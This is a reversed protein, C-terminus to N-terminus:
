ATPAIRRFAARIAVSETALEDPFEGLGDDNAEGLNSSVVSFGGALDIAEAVCVHHHIALSGVALRAADRYLRREGNIGVVDPPRAPVSTVELLIRPDLCVSCNGANIDQLFGLVPKIPSFGIHISDPGPVQLGLLRKTVAALLILSINVSARARWASVRSINAVAGTRKVLIERDSVGSLDPPIAVSAQSSAAVEIFDWHDAEMESLDATVATVATVASRSRFNKAAQAAEGEQMWLDCSRVPLTRIGAYPGPGMGRGEGDGSLAPEWLHGCGARICGRGYRFTGEEGSPDPTGWSVGRWVPAPTVMEVPAVTQAFQGLGTLRWMAVVAAWPTGYPMGHGVPSCFKLLRRYLLTAAASWNPTDIEVILRIISRPSNSVSRSPGREFPLTQTSRSSWAPLGSPMGGSRAVSESPMGTWGGPLGTGTDLSGTVLGSPMDLPVDPLRSPVGSSTTVPRGPLGATVGSRSM